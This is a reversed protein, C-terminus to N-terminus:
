LISKFGWKSLEVRDPRTQFLHFPFKIQQTPHWIPWQFILSSLTLPKQTQSFFLLIEMTRREGRFFGFVVIIKFFFYFKIWYGPPLCFDTSSSYPQTCWSHIKYQWYLTVLSITSSSRFYSSTYLWSNSIKIANQDKFAFSNWTKLNWILNKSSQLRMPVFTM